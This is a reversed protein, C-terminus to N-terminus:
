QRSPADDGSPRDAQPTELRWHPNIRFMTRVGGGPTQEEALDFLETASLVAKLNPLGFRGRLDELEDPAQRKILHGATSLLTWGDARPTAMAVQGLMVVLRSSRLFLLEMQRQGEESALLAAQEKCATEMTKAWGRLRELMAVAAERQVDLWTTALEADGAVAAQWRPLFHHVLENRRDVLEKLEAAHRAATQADTEVSFRFGFWAEEIADPATEDSAPQLVEDVLRGALDGMSRRDILAAHRDFREAFKSVPAHFRAHTMLVKLVQEVQQYIVLNRGIRRLVEDTAPTRAPAMPATSDSM